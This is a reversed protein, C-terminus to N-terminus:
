AMLMKLLTAKGFGCVFLRGHVLRGIVSLEKELLENLQIGGTEHQVRGERNMNTAHKSDFLLKHHVPDQLAACVFFKAKKLQGILLRCGDLM